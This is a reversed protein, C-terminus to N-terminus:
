LIVYKVYKVGNKSSYIAAEAMKWIEVKHKWDCTEFFGGSNAHM